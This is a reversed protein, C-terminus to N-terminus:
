DSARRRARRPRPERRCRLTEPRALPDLVGRKDGADREDRCRHPERAREMEAQALRRVQGGRHDVVPEVSGHHQRSRRLSLCNGNSDVITYSTAYVGTDGMEVWKQDLRSAVCPTQTTVYGGVTSNTTVCYTSTGNNTFLWGNAATYTFKQNFAINAPNPNQKCPFDIHFSANPNQGTLDFCRGFEQYNVLQQTAAGAM